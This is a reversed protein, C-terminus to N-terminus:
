RISRRCWGVLLDWDIVRRTRPSRRCSTRRTLRCSTESSTTSAVSCCTRRPRSVANKWSTRLPEGPVFRVRSKKSALWPVPSNVTRSTSHRCGGTSCNPRRLIPEKRPHRALHVSLRTARALSKAEPPTLARRYIRLDQLTLGPITASAHRQGIKLPVDTHIDGLLADAQVATPQVEGDFYVQVGAAKRSGDYTVLVHTWKDAPIPDRSVVKLADTSWQHIIHTGIRRQEVWLDWGRYGNQDDMRAVIAGAADQPPLKVWAGYSFAQDAAFDGAGALEAVGNGQIQLAHAAVHCTTWVPDNALPVSQESNDVRIRTSTGSGEDLPAHLHLGDAPVTRPCRTPSPRPWGPM